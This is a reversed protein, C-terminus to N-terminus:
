DKKIARNEEGEESHQEKQEVLVNKRAGNGGGKHCKKVENERLRTATGRGSELPKKRQLRDVNETPRPGMNGWKIKKRVQGLKEKASKGKLASIPKGRKAKCETPWTGVKQSTGNTKESKRTKVRGPGAFEPKKM